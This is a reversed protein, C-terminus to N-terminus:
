RDGASKSRPMFAAYTQHVRFRPLTVTDTKIHQVDSEIRAIRSEVHDSMVPDETKEKMVASSKM